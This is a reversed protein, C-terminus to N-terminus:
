MQTLVVCEKWYMVAWYFCHSCAFELAKCDTRIYVYTGLM